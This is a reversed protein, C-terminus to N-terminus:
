LATRLARIANEARVPNSSAPSSSATSSPKPPRKAGPMPDWAAARAPAWAISMGEVARGARDGEIGGLGNGVRLAEEGRDALVAGDGDGTLGDRDGDRDALGGLDERDGTDVLQRHGPGTARGCLLSGSM